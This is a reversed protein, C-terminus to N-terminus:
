DAVVSYFAPMPPRTMFKIAQAHVTMHEQTQHMKAFSDRDSFVVMISHRGDQSELLRRAIFGDFKSVVNNSEVFWKKFEQMSEKKLEIDSIVVFESKETVVPLEM